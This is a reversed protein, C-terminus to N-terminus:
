EGAARRRPKRAPNAAGAGESGVAKGPSADDAVEDLPRSIVYRGRFWLGLEAMRCRDSCFPWCRAHEPDAPDLPRSCYRCPQRKPSKPQTM